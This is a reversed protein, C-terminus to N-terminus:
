KQRKNREWKDEWKTNEISIYHASISLFHIYKKQPRTTKIRERDGKKEGIIKGNQYEISICFM